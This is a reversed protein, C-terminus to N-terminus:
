IHKHFQAQERANRGNGHLTLGLIVPFIHSLRLDVRLKFGFGALRYGLGSACGLEAYTLWVETSQFVTAM